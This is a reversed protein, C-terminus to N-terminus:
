DKVSGFHAAEVERVFPDEHRPLPVRITAPLGPTMWLLCPLLLATQFLIGGVIPVFSSGFLSVGLIMTNLTHCAIVNPNRGYAGLLVDVKRLLVGILFCGALIGPYSFNYYLEAIQGPPLGASGLLNHGRVVQGITNDINVIPKGPWVERPIWALFVLLYTKGWQYPLRDPIAEMIFATKSADIFNDNLVM